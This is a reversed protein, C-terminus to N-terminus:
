RQRRKSLSVRARAKPAEFQSHIHLVGDLPCPRVGAINEYIYRSNNRSALQPGKASGGLHLGIRIMFSEELRTPEIMTACSEVMQYPPVWRFALELSFKM